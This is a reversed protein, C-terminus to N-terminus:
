WRDMVFKYFEEAEHFIDFEFILEKADMEIVVTDPHTTKSRNLITANIKDLRFTTIKVISNDLKEEVSIAPFKGAKLMAQTVQQTKKM